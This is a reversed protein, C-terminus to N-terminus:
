RDLERLLAAAAPSQDHAHRWASQAFAHVPGWAQVEGTPVGAARAVLDALEYFEEGELFRYALLSLDYSLPALRPEPDILQLRGRATRLINAPVLDAHCLVAPAESVLQSAREAAKFGWREPLRGSARRAAVAMNKQPNLRPIGPPPADNRAAAALMQAAAPLLSRDDRTLHRGHLREILIADTDSRHVAPAHRTESWHRLAIAERMSWRDVVALKLVAEEGEATKVLLVCSRGGALSGVLELDWERLVNEVRQPLVDIWEAGINLWRSLVYTRARESLLEHTLLRQSVAGVTCLPMPDNMSASPNRFRGDM